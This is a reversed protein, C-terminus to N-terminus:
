KKFVFSFSEAMCFGGFPCTSLELSDGGAFQFWFTTTDKINASDSFFLIKKNSIQYENTDLLLTPENSLQGGSVVVKSGSIFNLRTNGVNPIVENYVGSFGNNTVSSNKKCM